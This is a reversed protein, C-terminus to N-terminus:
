RGSTDGSGSIGVLPAHCSDLATMIEAGAQYVEEIAKSMEAAAEGASRGRLGRPSLAKTGTEPTEGATLASTQIEEVLLSVDKQVQVALEQLHSGSTEHSGAPSWAKTPRSRKSHAMERM